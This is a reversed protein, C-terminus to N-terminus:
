AGYRLPWALYRLADPGHDDVKLPKPEGVKAIHSAEDRRYVTMERILNTCRPHVKLLRVGNGDCVLRRVNKIGESVEHTAGFTIINRQNIRAKLQAASSDVWAAEPAPYPWGPYDDPKEPNGLITDLTKEEVELTKVYEAFINLGGIPTVQGLLVVRPHYSDTSIGRGHAYGDDVGWRVDWAANYDADESINEYSWNDYIVGETNEADWNGALLRAIQVPDGSALIRSAYVSDASPNDILKAPYFARSLADPHDKDVRRDQEDVTAFYALRNVIDTNIFRNKVWYHGLNGPNTASRIYARLGSDPPVRCRTFMYLYQRKTFETLEDFGIFAYEAGQYQLMDDEHQMHGFYIRSGSPFAWYHKTSNYRGGYSPYWEQSRQIIGRAAELSPFVRRFLIGTYRPNDVQRLAEMTLCETKGPGAAGGFLAEFAPSSLFRTQQGAHPRWENREIPEIRAETTM